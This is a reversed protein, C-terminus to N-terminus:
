GPLLYFNESDASPMLITRALNESFEKRYKTVTKPSLGYYAAVYGLQSQYRSTASGVFKIHDLTVAWLRSYANKFERSVNHIHAWGGAIKVSENFFESDFVIREAETTFNPMTPIFDEPMKERLSNMMEHIEKSTPEPIKGLLIYFGQPHCRILLEILGTVRKLKEYFNSKPKSEGEEDDRNIMKCKPM